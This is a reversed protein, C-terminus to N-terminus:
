GACAREGLVRNYRYAVVDSKLFRFLMTRLKRDHHELLTPRPNKHRWYTLVVEYDTDGCIPGTFAAFKCSL